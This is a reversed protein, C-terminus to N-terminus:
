AAKTSIELAGTIELLREAEYTEKLEDTHITVLTLHNSAKNDLAARHRKYRALAPGFYHELVIGVAAGYLFGLIGGHVVLHGYAGPVVQWFLFGGLVGALASAMPITGFGKATSPLVAVESVEPNSFVVDDTAPIVSVDQPSFGRARFEQVAKAASDPSPFIGVVVKHM